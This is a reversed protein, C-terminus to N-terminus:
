QAQPVVSTTGQYLAKASQAPLPNKQLRYLGVQNPRSQPAQEVGSLAPTSTTGQYLAKASQTPFMSDKLLM